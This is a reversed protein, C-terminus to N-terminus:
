LRTKLQETLQTAVGFLEALQGKQFQVDDGELDERISRCLQYATRIRESALLTATDAPGNDCLRTAAAQQAAWAANRVRNLADRFDGLARPDIDDCRLLKQLAQLERIASNLRVSVAPNSASKSKV